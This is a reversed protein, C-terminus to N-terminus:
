NHEQIIRNALIRGLIVVPAHINSAPFSPLISADCLYFNNFNGVKFNNQVVKTAGGILHHGSQFTNQIYKKPEKRINELNSIDGVFQSMEDTEALELAKLLGLTALNQDDKESLYGPDIIQEGKCLKVTGRSAPDITSISLSFGPVVDFGGQQNLYHEFAESYALLNIRTDVVGDNNLDLNLASTAGTGSMITKFGCLHRLSLQSKKIKSKWVENISGYPKKSKINIRFNIHDALGEGLDKQAFFRNQFKTSLKHLAGFSGQVGSSLIFIDGHVLGNNTVISKVENGKSINLGEFFTDMLISVKKQRLLDLVSSRFIRGSNNVIYGVAQDDQNVIDNAEIGLTNAAQIFCQDLSSKRATKLNIIDRDNANLESNFASLRAKDFEVQSIDFKELTRGWLKKGGVTHVCGNIASAGGFLKSQFFPVSRDESVKIMTNSIYRKKPDRFALGIALPLRYLFGAKPVKAQELITVDFTEALQSAISIGCTGGGVIVVKLKKNKFIM